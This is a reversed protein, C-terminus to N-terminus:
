KVPVQMWCENIHPSATRVSYTVWAQQWPGTVPAVGELTLIEQLEGCAFSYQLDTALAPTEFTLSAIRIAPFPELESYYSAKPALAPNPYDSTPLAMSAMLNPGTPRYILPVTLPVKTNASNFGSFYYFLEEVVQLSTESWTEPFPVALNATVLSVNLGSAFDRVSYNGASTVTSYCITELEPNLPTTCPPSPAGECVVAALM